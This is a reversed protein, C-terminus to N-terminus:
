KVIKLVRDWRMNFVTPTGTVGPELEGTSHSAYIFVPRGIVDESRIFGWYRSDLSNDRNDGLVFYRGDPVVLEGGNLNDSLMSGAEISLNPPDGQPFNDRYADIYDTTHQAYPESVPSGNRYLHKDRIRLRDGPAGVVRKTFTQRRDIPYHFV